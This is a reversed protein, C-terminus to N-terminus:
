IQYAAIVHPARCLDQWGHGQPGYLSPPMMLEWEYVPWVGPVETDAMYHFYMFFDEERFECSGFSTYMYKTHLLTM